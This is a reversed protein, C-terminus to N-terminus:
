VFDKYKYSNKEHFVFFPGPKCTIEAEYQRRRARGHTQAVEPAERVKGCLVAASKKQKYINHQRHCEAEREHCRFDGDAAFRAHARKECVALKVFAEAEEAPYRRSYGYDDERVVANYATPNCFVCEGVYEATAAIDGFRARAIIERAKDGVFPLGQKPEQQIHANRGSYNHQANILAYFLGGFEHHGGQEDYYDADRNIRKCKRMGVFVANCARRELAQLNVENGIERPEGNGFEEAYQEVRRALEEIGHAKGHANHYCVARVRALLIVENGGYVLDFYEICANRKQRAKDDNGRNERKVAFLAKSGGARSKHENGQGFDEVFHAEDAVDDAREEKNQYEERREGGGDRYHFGNHRAKNIFVFDAANFGRNQNKNDANHEAHNNAEAVAHEIKFYAEGRNYLTLKEINEIINGVAEKEGNHRQESAQENPNAACFGEGVFHFDAHVAFFEAAFLEIHNHNFEHGGHEQQEYKELREIHECKQSLEAKLWLFKCYGM